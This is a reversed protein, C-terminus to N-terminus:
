SEGESRAAARMERDSYTQILWWVADLLDFISVAPSGCVFTAEFREWSRPGALARLVALLGDIAFPDEVFAAAIHEFGDPLSPVCDLTMGGISVSVTELDSLDPDPMPRNAVVVAEVVEDLWALSAPEGDDAARRHLEFCLATWGDDTLSGALLESAATRARDPDTLGAAALITAAEYADLTEDLVARLELLVGDVAVHMM